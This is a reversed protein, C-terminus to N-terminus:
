AIRTGDTRNRVFAVLAQIERFNLWVYLIIGVGSWLLSPQAYGSAALILMPVVIRWHFNDRLTVIASVPIESLINRGSTNQLTTFAAAGVIVAVAVFDQSFGAWAFTWALLLTLALAQLSQQTVVALKKRALLLSNFGFNFATITQAILLLVLTSRAEEFEDLFLFVAPTLLILLASVLFVSSRYITAIRQVTGIELDTRDARFRHLIVPNVAWSIANVGLMSALALSNALTYYALIEMRYFVGVITRTGVLVLYTSLTYIFLPMSSTVINWIRPRDFVPMWSFPTGVTLIIIGLINSTLLSALLAHILAEGEFAPIVLVPALATLFEALTIRLLNGYVRQVSVAVQYFHFVIAQLVVLIVFSNLEFGELELSVFAAIGVGSALLISGVSSLIAITPGIIEKNESGDLAKKTALELGVATHVGLNSYSLYQQILTLIGWLGFLTPGLVNAILLGRVAHLVHVVYRNATFILLKNRDPSTLM